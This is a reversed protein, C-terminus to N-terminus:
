ETVWVVFSLEGDEYHGTIELRPQPDRRWSYGERFWFIKQRFPAMPGSRCARGHGTRACSRGCNTRVLGFTTPTHRQPTRCLRYLRIRRLKRLPVAKLRQLRMRQNHEGVPLALGMALTVIAILTVPRVVPM